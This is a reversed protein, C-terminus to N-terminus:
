CPPIQVLVEEWNNRFCSILASKYDINNLRCTEKLSLHIAHANIVEENIFNGSNKRLVVFPRIAREAPNNDPIVDSYKLFTFLSTNFKKLRKIIRIMDPDKVGMKEILFILDDLLGEADRQLPLVSRKKIEPSSKNERSKNYEHLLSTFFQLIILFQWIADNLHSIKSNIEKIEKFTLAPPFKRKRGRKKQTIKEENERYQTRENDIELKNQLKKKTRQKDWLIEKLERILHAWCKQQEYNLKNYATWFDSIIVGQFDELERKIADHGRSKNVHYIAINKTVLVWMWWNKGNMPLGTEDVHLYNSKKARRWLEKYVKKIPNVTKKMWNILSTKSIPENFFDMLDQVIIDYSLRHGIRKMIVYTIIGYGFRGGTMAKIPPIRDTNCNTCRYGKITYETNEIYLGKEVFIMDTVVRTYCIQPKKKAFSEGCVPCKKYSILERRDIQTPRKRGGGRGGKPKGIKKKAKDKPTINIKKKNTKINKKYREKKVRREIEELTKDSNSMRSLYKKYVREEIADQKELDIENPLFLSYERPFILEKIQNISYIILLLTVALNILLEQM